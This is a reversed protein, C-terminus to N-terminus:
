FTNKLKQFEKCRIAETAKNQIKKHRITLVYFDQGM